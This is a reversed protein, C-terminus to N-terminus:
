SSAQKTELWALFEAAAARLKIEEADYRQLLERGLDTLVTGGSDAGGRSSVFLPEAFCGQLTELLFWTRRYGLGMAKAAGTISGTEGVLRLLEIKGTGIMNTHVFIKVRLGPHKLKEVDVSKEKPRSM